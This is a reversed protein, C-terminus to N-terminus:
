MGKMCFEANLRQMVEADTLKSDVGERLRAKISKATHCNCAVVRDACGCPCPMAEAISLARGSLPEDTTDKVPAEARARPPAQDKLATLYDQRRVAPDRAALAAFEQPLVPDFAVEANSIAGAQYLKIRGDAGIVVTTPFAEVGYRKMLAGDGDIGVPFGLDLRRVFADVQAPTEQADIALLVFPKGDGKMKKVYYQLEPMEARCPQCWTAFFNLVIAERGIHDALRFTSGDRLPLEFDEAVRGRWETSVAFADAAARVQQPDFGPKIALQISILAVALAASLTWWVRDSM